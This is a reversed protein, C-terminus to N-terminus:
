YTTVPLVFFISEKMCLTKAGSMLKKLTLEQM